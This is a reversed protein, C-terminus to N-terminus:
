IALRRNMHYMGWFRCPVISGFLHFILLGAFWDVFWGWCWGLLFCWFWWAVLCWGLWFGFWSVIHGLFWRSIVWGFLRHKWGLWAVVLWFLRLILRGFILSGFLWDILWRWWWTVFWLFWFLLCVRCWSLRLGGVVICWGWLFGIISWWRLWSVVISWWGFLFIVISLRFRWGLWLVVISWWWLM